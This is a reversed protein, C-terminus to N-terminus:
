SVPVIKGALVLRSAAEGSPDYVEVQYKAGRFGFYASKRYKPAFVVLERRGVDIQWTDKAKAAHELDAFATTRSYTGVALFSARPNGAAVRTPLYRGYFRGDHTTTVEYSYGSKPGAWYV